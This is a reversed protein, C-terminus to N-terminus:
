GGYRNTGYGYGSGSGPNIGYIPYDSHDASWSSHVTGMIENQMFPSIAVNPIPPITDRIDRYRNADKQSYMRPNDDSSDSMGDADPIGSGSYQEVRDSGMRGGYPMHNMTAPPGDATYGLLRSGRYVKTGDADFGEELAREMDSVRTYLTRHRPRGAEGLDDRTNLPQGYGLQISTTPKCEQAPPCSGPRFLPAPRTRLPIQEEYRQQQQQRAPGVLRSDAEHRYQQAPRSRRREDDDYQAHANLPCHPAEADYPRTHRPRHLAHFHSSEDEAAAMNRSSAPQQQQEPQMEQRYIADRKGLANWPAKEDETLTRWLAGAFRSIAPNKPKSTIDTHHYTGSSSSSSGPSSPPREKEKQKQKKAASSPSSTSRIDPETAYSLIEKITNTKIAAEYVSQHQVCSRFHIFPNRNRAVHGDAQKKAHTKKKLLGPPSWTPIPLPFGKLSRPLGDTSGTIALPIIPSSFASSTNSSGSPSLAPTTHRSGLMAPQPYM